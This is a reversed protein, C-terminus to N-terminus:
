HLTWLGAEGPGGPGHPRPCSTPSWGKNSPPLLGPRLPLPQCLSCNQQQKSQHGVHLPLAGTQGTAGVCWVCQLAPGGQGGSIFGLDLIVLSAFLPSQTHSSPCIVLRQTGWTQTGELCSPSMTLHRGWGRCWWGCSSWGSGQTPRVARLTLRWWVCSRAKSIWRIKLSFIHNLFFFQLNVSNLWKYYKSSQACVQAVLLNRMMQTTPYTVTESEVLKVRSRKLMM